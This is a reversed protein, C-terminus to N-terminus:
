KPHYVKEWNIRMRRSDMRYMVALIFGVLVAIVVYMSVITGAGTRPNVIIILLALLSLSLSLQVVGSTRYTQREQFRWSSYQYEASATKRELSQNHERTDDMVANMVAYNYEKEKTLMDISATTQADVVFQPPVTGTYGEVFTEKDSTTYVVTRISLGVMGVLLVIAVVLKYKQCFAHRRFHLFLVSANVSAVLAVMGWMEVRAKTLALKIRDADNEARFLGDKNITVHRKLGELNRGSLDVTPGTVARQTEVFFKTKLTEYAGELTQATTWTIVAAFIYLAHYM